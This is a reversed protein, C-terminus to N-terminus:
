VFDDQAAVGTRQSLDIVSNKKGLKKQTKLQLKENRRTHTHDVTKSRGTRNKWSRTTANKPAGIESIPNDSSISENERDHTSLTAVFGTRRRPRGENLRGGNFNM